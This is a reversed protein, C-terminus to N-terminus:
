FQAAYGAQAQLDPAGDSLGFGIAARFMGRSGPRWNIGGLARTDDDDGDLRGDRFALEAVGSLNDSFPFIAGLGLQLVTEGDREPGGFRMGDGNMQLGLHGTIILRELRHRLAGFASGGFADSGLGATEDGTPVTIVGGVAFETSEVHGLLYKGWLELDTAGSGDPGGGSLDTNGFGVRGGLEVDDWTQFAAVGTLIAADFRDWNATGLQGEWWQRNAAAADEIFALFLRDPASTPAPPTADQGLVLSACGLILLCTVLPFRSISHM